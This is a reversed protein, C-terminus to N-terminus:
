GDVPIEHAHELYGRLLAGLSSTVSPAFIAIMLASGALAFWTSVEQSKPLDGKERADSLRKQTPDETKESDDSGEAM